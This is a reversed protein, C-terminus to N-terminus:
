RKLAADWIPVSKGNQFWFSGRRLPNATLSSSSTVMLTRSALLQKDIPRAVRDRDPVRM